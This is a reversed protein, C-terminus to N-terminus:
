QSSLQSKMKDHADALECDQTLGDKCCPFAPFFACDIDNLQTQPPIPIQSIHAICMRGATCSGRVKFSTQILQSTHFWGSRAIPEARNMETRERRTGSIWCIFHWWGPTLAWQGECCASRCHSQKQSSRHSQRSGLM